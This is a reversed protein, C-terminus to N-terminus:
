KKLNDNMKRVLIIAKKIDAAQVEDTATEYMEIVLPHLKKRLLNGKATLFILKNRRDNEDEVRKVLKRKVLNDVLYTISSKDKIVVDAMEQQNIGNKRWLLSVIELLEFTIDLDHEKIKVQINRRLQNKMESVSRGFELALEAINKTAM